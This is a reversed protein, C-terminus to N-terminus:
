PEIRYTRGRDQDRQAKERSRLLDGYEEGKRLLRNLPALDYRRKADAHVLLYIEGGPANVVGPLRIIRGERALENLAETFSWGLEVNYRDAEDELVARNLSLTAILQRSSPDRLAERAEKVTHLNLAAIPKQGRALTDLILNKAELVSHRRRAAAQIRPARGLPLWLGLLTGRKAGSARLVECATVIDTSM